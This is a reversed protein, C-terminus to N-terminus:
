IFDFGKTALKVTGKACEKTLYTKVLLNFLLFSPISIVYISVCGKTTYRRERNRLRYIAFNINSMLEFYHLHMKVFTICQILM